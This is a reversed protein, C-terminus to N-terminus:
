RATPNDRTVQPEWSDGTVAMPQADSHGEVTLDSDFQKSEDPSLHKNLLTRIDSEICSIKDHIINLNHTQDSSQDKLIATDKRVDLINHRIEGCAIRTINSHEGIVQLM